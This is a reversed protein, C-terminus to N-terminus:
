EQSRWMPYKPGGQYRLEGGPRSTTDAGLDSVCGAAAACLAGVALLVAITRAFSGAIM